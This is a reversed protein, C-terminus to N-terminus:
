MTRTKMVCTQKFFQNDSKCFTHPSIEDGNLTWTVAPTRERIDQPEVLGSCIKSSSLASEKGGWSPVRYIDAKYMRVIDVAVCTSDKKDGNNFFECSVKGTLNANCTAEVEASAQTSFLLTIGLVGLVKKM